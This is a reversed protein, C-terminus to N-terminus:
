SVAYIVQASNLINQRRIYNRSRELASKSVLDVKRGFIAELEDRMDVHDFLTWQHDPALKILVDIDSDPRFDERLASGFLALETIQWRQCFEALQSEPIEINKVLM